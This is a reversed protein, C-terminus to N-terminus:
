NGLTVTPTGTGGTVGTSTLDLNIGLSIIFLFLAGSSSPASNLTITAVGGSTTISGVAFLPNGAADHFQTSFTDSGGSGSAQPVDLAIDCTTTSGGTGVGAAGVTAGTYSSADTASGSVNQYCVSSAQAGTVGLTLMVAVIGVATWIAGRRLMNHGGNQENCGGIKNLPLSSNMTVVLPLLRYALRTQDM